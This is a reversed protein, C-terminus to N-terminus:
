FSLGSERASDALAKIRGHFRFGGRDFIVSEIGLKGARKAITKGVESAAMTTAGGKIRQRCDNDLTSASTLTISKTDDIIQAYIHKGSRFVSLRLRGGASKVIRNRVRARRRNFLERTNTM